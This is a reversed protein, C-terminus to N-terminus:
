NEGLTFQFNIFCWARGERRLVQTVMGSLVKDGGEVYMHNTMRGTIIAIDGTVRVTLPGREVSMFGRREDANYKLFEEKSHVVGTSHIHVLDDAMLTDLAALDRTVLAARRRDEAELVFKVDQSM